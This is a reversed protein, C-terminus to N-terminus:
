SIYVRLNCVFHCTELVRETHCIPYQIILIYMCQEQLTEHGEKSAYSLHFCNQAANTLWKHAVGIAIKWWCIVRLICMLLLICYNPVSGACCIPNHITHISWWQKKPTDYQENPAHALYPYLRQCCRIAM